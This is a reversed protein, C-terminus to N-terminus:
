FNIWTSGNYYSLQNLDTDYVVMSALATLGNKQATTMSSPMFAKIGGIQLAVDANSVKKSATGIALKSLHNETNPDQNRIFWADTAGDSFNQGLLNADQLGIRTPNSVSGGFSPLGLIDIVVHEPITGGSGAPVSTGVLLSRLLPVTKGSAVVVQSLFGNMTTNLGIPGTTIDEDVQLNAQNFNMFTDFGSTPASVIANVSINNGIDVPGGTGSPTYSSQIQLTGGNAEISNLRQNISTASGLNIRIARADDTYTGSMNLDLATATRSNGTTNFQFGRIEESMDDNNGISVGSFRYGSGNNNINVGFITSSGDIVNMNNNFDLGFIGGDMDGNQFNAQFGIANVGSGDGINVNTFAGYGTYGKTIDGNNKFILSGAAFGAVAGGMDGNIVRSDGAVDQQNGFAFMNLNGTISKTDDAIFVNLPSADGEHNGTKNLILGSWGGHTDGNMQAHFAALSDGGAPTGIEGNQTLTFGYYPGVVNSIQDVWVGLAPGSILGNNQFISGRYQAATGDNYHLASIFENTTNGSNQTHHMRMQDASATNQNYLAIYQGAVTGQAEQRIGFMNQGITMNSFLNLVNVDNTNNGSVSLSIGNHGVGSTLDINGDLGHLDTVQWDPLDQLQGDTDRFWALRSATDVPPYNAASFNGTLTLDGNNSLVMREIGNTSWNLTGDGSSFMGSDSDFRYSPAAASGAPASLPFPIASADIDGPQITRFAPIAPSGTTPGALFTNATKVPYIFDDASVTNAFIAEQNNTLFLVEVGNTAFNLSGDGNSYMGTDSDFRYSPAAASGIPANIPFPISSLKANFTDYDAKSITGSSVGTGSALPINLTHVNATSVFAPATGTTGSAFSQTPGTQGNLSILGSGSSSGKLQWVFGDYVYIDQTDRTTAITGIPVGSPLDSFSDVIIGQGSPINVFTDSM